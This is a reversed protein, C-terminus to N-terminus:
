SQRMTFCGTEPMVSCNRFESVVTLCSSTWPYVLPSPLLRRYGYTTLGAKTVINAVSSGSRGLQASYRNTAIQFEQVAEQSINQVAGGVVDDNDDAGDITVNGGRGLQGASSIVVTNTKTPDFNPAPSNGPVLLALELFNRGNLPLADILRRDILGDVASTNVDILPVESVLDVIENIRGVELTAGLTTSQGVQLTIPSESSKTVFGVAQVKVEYEGPALGTLAYVGDANTTVVRRASTAVQTATIRAGSIAAGHQDLVRGTMAATAAQQGYCLSSTCILAFAALRLVLDVGFLTHVEKRSSM